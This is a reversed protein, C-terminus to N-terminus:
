DALKNKVIDEAWKKVAAVDADTVKGKKFLSNKVNVVLTEGAVNVGNSKLTAKVPELESVNGTGSVLYFAVNKARAPKLDKCFDVVPKDISKDTDIGIFIVKESECPYAPPIQDSVCQYARGLEGAIIQANGNKSFHMSKAKM